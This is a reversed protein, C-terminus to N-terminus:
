AQDNLAQAISYTGGPLVGLDTATYSQAGLIPVLILAVAACAGLRITSRKIEIKRKTKMWPEGRRKCGFLPISRRAQFRTLIFTKADRFNETLLSRFLERHACFAVVSASARM